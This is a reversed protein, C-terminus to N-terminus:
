CPKNLTPIQSSNDILEGSNEIGFQERIHGESYIFSSLYYNISESFLFPVRIFASEASKRQNRFFDETFGRGLKVSKLM